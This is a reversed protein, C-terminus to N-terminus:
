AKPVTLLQLFSLKSQVPLQCVQTISQKQWWQTLYSSLLKMTMTFTITMCYVFESLPFKSNFLKGCHTFFGSALCPIFIDQYKLFLYSLGDLAIVEHANTLYLYWCKLWTSLTINSTDKIPSTCFQLFQIYFLSVRVLIYDM